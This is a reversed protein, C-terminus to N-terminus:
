VIRVQPSWGVERDLLVLGSEQRSVFAQENDCLFFDFLLERCINNVKNCIM